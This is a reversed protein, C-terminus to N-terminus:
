TVPATVFCTPSSPCGSPCVTPRPGARSLRPACRDRRLVTNRLPAPTEDWDPMDALPYITYHAFNYIPMLAILRELEENSSVNYLWAGGHAGVIHYRAAVQGSNELPKAYAPMRAVAAAVHPSLLSLELKWIVLFKV